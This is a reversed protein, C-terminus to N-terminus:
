PPAGIELWDFVLLHHKRTESLDFNPARGRFYRVRNVLRYVSLPDNVYSTMLNQANKGGGGREDDNTMM